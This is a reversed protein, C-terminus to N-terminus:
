KTLRRYEWFFGACFSVIAFLILWVPARDILSIPDWGASTEEPSSHITRNFIVATVAVIASAAFAGVVALLGALLSRLLIIPAEM